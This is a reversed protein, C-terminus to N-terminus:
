RGWKMPGGNLYIRRKKKKSKTQPPDVPDRKEEPVLLRGCMMCRLGEKFRSEPASAIVGCVCEVEVYKKM